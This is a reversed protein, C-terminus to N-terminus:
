RDSRPPSELVVLTRDIMETLFRTVEEEIEARERGGYHQGLREVIAAVSREGDCLRLIAAGTENLLLGKEPALLMDRGTKKDLRLRAKRALRPRADREIV